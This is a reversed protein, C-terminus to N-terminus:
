LLFFYLKISYMKQNSNLHIYSNKVFLKSLKNNNEAINVLLFITELVPYKLWTLQYKLIVYSSKIDLLKM